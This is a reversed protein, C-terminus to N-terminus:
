DKRCVSGSSCQRSWNEQVPLHPLCCSCVVSSMGFRSNTPFSQLIYNLREFAFCRWSHVPGFRRLLDGFHLMMHQYPSIRTHPYLGEMPDSSGFGILDELYARIHYEFQEVRDATMARMNALRVATILHMFNVLMKYKRTGPKLGWLRILTIPLHITSFTRWQDATFKGQAAEGPKSPASPIFSPKKTKDMDARIEALTLRGLVSKNGHRFLYMARAKEEENPMPIEWLGDCDTLEVSMGWIDRCHRQLVRLYFGHMPDVVTNQVPDWYDLRLLESWRVGNRHYLADREAESGAALWEKAMRRHEMNTRPTFLNPDLNNLHSIKCISCPNASSGYHAFGGLLRAAPLDCVLAVLAARVFCGSPH